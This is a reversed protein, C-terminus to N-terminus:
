RKFSLFINAWCNIDNWINQETFRLYWISLLKTNYNKQTMLYENCYKRGEAVGQGISSELILNAFHQATRRCSLIKLIGVAQGLVVTGRALLTQLDALQGSFGQSRQGALVVWLNNKYCDMVFKNCCNAL